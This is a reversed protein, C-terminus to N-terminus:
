LTEKGAYLPTGLGQGSLCLIWKDYVCTCLEGDPASPGSKHRTVGMVPALYRNRSQHFENDCYRWDSRSAFHAKQVSAKSCNSQNFHGLVVPDSSSIRSFSPIFSYYLITPNSRSIRSKDPVFLTLHMRM